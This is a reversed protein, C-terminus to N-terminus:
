PNRRRYDDERHDEAIQGTVSFVDADQLVATV